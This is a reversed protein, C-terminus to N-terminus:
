TCTYMHVCFVVNHVHIHSHTDLLQIDKAVEGQRNPMTCTRLITCTCQIHVHIHTWQNKPQKKIYLSVVKISTEPNLDGSTQNKEFMHGCM